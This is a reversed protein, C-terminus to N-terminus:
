YLDELMLQVKERYDKKSLYSAYHPIKFIKFEDKFNRKLIKYADNGIAIILPTDIELIKLEKRFIELNEEEFKKDTRLYKMMNGSSKEEFDKIIDTMYGGWLVTDKLVDRLKYDTSKSRSDHFNGLPTEIRRSINLGVLIINPRLLDLIQNNREIDFISLDGINDKPREGEEAWIAWSVYHGYKSKILNFKAKNM